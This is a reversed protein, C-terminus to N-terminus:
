AEAAPAAPTRENLQVHVRWWRDHWAEDKTQRWLGWYVRALTKLLYADRGDELLEDGLRAAIEYDGADAHLAIACTRAARTPEPGADLAVVGDIALRALDPEHERRLRPALAALLWARREPDLEAAAQVALELTPTERAGRIRSRLADVLVQPISPGGPVVRTDVAVLL